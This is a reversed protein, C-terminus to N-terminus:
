NLCRPVLSLLVIKINFEALLFNHNRRNPNRSCKWADCTQLLSILYLLSLIGGGICFVKECNCYEFINEERKRKRIKVCVRYWDSSLLLSILITKIIQFISNSCVNMCWYLCITKIVLVRHLRSQVYHM